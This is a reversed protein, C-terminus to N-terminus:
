RGIILALEIIQIWSLLSLFRSIKINVTTFPHCFFRSKKSGSAKFVPIEKLFEGLSYAHTTNDMTLLM